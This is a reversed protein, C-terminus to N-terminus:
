RLQGAEPGDGLAPPVMAGAIAEAYQSDRLFTWAAGSKELHEETARHDLKM